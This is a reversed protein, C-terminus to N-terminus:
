KRVVKGQYLKKQLMNVNFTKQCLKIKGLDSTTIISACVAKSGDRGCRGARHLYDVPKEPLGINIVSDVNDFHLGRASIDSSILYNLKECKFSDVIQRRKNKDLNAHLCAVDYHHYELKQTIEETDYKSNSFILCHKTNLAKIVKRAMEIQERKEVVFYIHEINSPITIKETASINVYEGGLQEAYKKTEETISASYLMIQIDRMFCKRLALVGEFNDKNLMKDAEDIILTRVQHAALKREEKILEYLRQYTGVVINPKSKLTQLQRQKNVGSFLAAATIPIGSNNSIQNIQSCIQICLEKTPAVIAAYLVGKDEINRMIVPLLFALTKGTGTGSCGIINKGEFGPNLSEEQIKTLKTINQKKLGKILRNDLEM